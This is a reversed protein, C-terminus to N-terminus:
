RLLRMEKGSQFNSCLINDISFTYMPVYFYLLNIELYLDRNMEFYFYFSHKFVKM